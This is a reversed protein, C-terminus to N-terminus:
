ISSLGVYMLDRLIAMSVILSRKFTITNMCTGEKDWLRLEDSGSVLQGTAAYDALANVYSTHGTFTSMAQGSAVSARDWIKISTDLGASALRNGWVTVTTVDATHGGLQGVCKGDMDWVKITKDDSATCLHHQGPLMEWVTLARVAGRHGSLKMVEADWVKVGRRGASVIRGGWHCADFLSLAGHAHVIRFVEGGDGDWLALSFDSSVSCLRNEGMVAIGTVVGEHPPATDTGVAMFQESIGGGKCGDLQAARAEAKLGMMAIAKPSTKALIASDGLLWLAKNKAGGKSGARSGRNKNTKTTQNSGSAGGDGGGGGAGGVAGGADPFSMGANKALFRTFNDMAMVKLIEAQAGDLVAEDVVRSGAPGDVELGAAEMGASATAADIAQKITKQHVHSINVMLDADKSIYTDYITRIKALRVEPAMTPAHQSYHAAEDWFM